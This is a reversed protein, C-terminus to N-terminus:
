LLQHTTNENPRIESPPHTTCKHDEERTQQCDSSSITATEVAVATSDFPIASDTSRLHLPHQITPEQDVQDESISGDEIRSSSITAIEVAPSPVKTPQDNLSPSPPHDENEDKEDSSRCAHACVIVGLEFLELFSLLTMGLLLHLHGGLTGVLEDLSIKAQEEVGIASLPSEYGISFKILNKVLDPFLLYKNSRIKDKIGIRAM